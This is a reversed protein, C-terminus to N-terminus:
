FSRHAGSNPATRNELTDTAAQRLLRELETSKGVGIEGAAVYIPDERRAPIEALAQDAISETRDGPVGLAVLRGIVRGKSATRSDHSAQNPAPPWGPRRYVKALCLSCRANTSLRVERVATRWNGFFNSSPGRATTPARPVWLEALDNGSQVVCRSYPGDFDLAAIDLASLLGYLESPARDGVAAKIHDFRLRFRDAARAVLNSFTIASTSNRATDCLWRLTEHGPSAQGVVLLLRRQRSAFAEPDNSIETSAAQLLERFKQNGRTLPQRYRAQVDVTSVEGSAGELELRFDDFGLVGAPQFVIATIRGGSTSDLGTLIDKAFWAAAKYEFM